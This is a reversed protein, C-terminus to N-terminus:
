WTGGGAQYVNFIHNIIQTGTVLNETQINGLATVDGTSARVLEVARRLANVDTVLALLSANVQRLQGIQILDVLAEEQEAAQLFAEVFDALGQAFDFGALNHGETAEEFLEVLREQDLPQSRVLRSLEVQVDARAFFAQLIPQVAKRASEDEPLLVAMGAQCCRQLAQERPTGKIQQRLGKGLAGLIGTTLNTAVGSLYGTTLPDTLFDISTGGSHNTPSATHM